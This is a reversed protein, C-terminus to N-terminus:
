PLVLSWKRNTSLLSRLGPSAVFAAKIRDLFASRIICGERWMLAIAGYDLEWGYEAAAERMLMFGQAYSVIKAALVAERISEVLDAGGDRRAVPGGLVGAAAVREDKLASLCRSYVAEGILTVPVGLDLSVVSTWKGTGKQGATDLIKDILPAGDDDRFGLIQSTIEILYSDLETANWAAFVDRMADSDLGVVNELLQYAECIIQMDGYEIGNHTMKVFHGAGDTGVWDCCPSGDPTKAAISQFIKQVIPWAAASGGPMISPGHRAGEEGGSVGTGVFFLGKGELYATRRATDPFHSNGGDIIVDGPELHPLLSDIFDDVPQGAKVMLMVKRPRELLSALEALSRAGVVNPHGNAAGALFEDVKELTRNYAVVRYGHDAMNLILNQGMV